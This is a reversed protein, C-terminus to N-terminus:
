GEYNLPALIQDGIHKTCLWVCGDDYLTQLPLWTTLVQLTDTRASDKRRVHTDVGAQSCVLPEGHTHLECATACSRRLTPPLQGPRGGLRSPRRVRSYLLLHQLSILLSWASACPDLTSGLSSLHQFDASTGSETSLVRSARELRSACADTSSVRKTNGARGGRTYQQAPARITMFHRM